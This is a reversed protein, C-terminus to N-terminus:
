IKMQLEMRWSLKLTLTSVRVLSKVARPAIMNRAVNMDLVKVGIEVKTNRCYLGKIMM